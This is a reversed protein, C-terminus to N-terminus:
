VASQSADREYEESYRPYQEGLLPQHVDDKRSRHVACSAAAFIVAVLVLAAVVAITIIETFNLARSPWQVEYSYGLSEPATVFMENNSVPPWFPVMNYQRNHGIPANELPYLSIDANHRRLWEDFVADTFTHLLVFIPDNPSVHTQGGTGNLFLHALNHLSRVSPDYKGSPESYGEVTNRFSESSNSYFPPTDFLGVELCLAVDQPEPLRQVMPRAVNGGPNRRIPGGETSNCITGLTDYGELSECLVRWQSFVSNSSLLISDFNSRAGMFDDTCIDCENGGIAFNWYPLAFTPDQLMEQMDRELQLLHYRHWTVFAPGEHSFDIGGFSERGAGLFTKGISYYHTWVFFNYISVNEFQTSNGDPGMIEAYRRSAIVYHPHTTRKALDLAAIFRRREQATLDLINRRVALVRQNCNVGVWGPKCSGCDYGSFNEACLCSNNFFRTPWQERDDVGDHPYQPGHPRADVQLPACRGRGVSAGCRDAPDPTLAPFLGPCCQGSRLAEPTVCQRPFQARGGPILLLLAATLPLFTAPGLM